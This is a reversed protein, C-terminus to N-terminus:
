FPTSSCYTLPRELELTVDESHGVLVGVRVATATVRLQSLHLIKKTENILKM